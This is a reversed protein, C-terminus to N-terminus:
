CTALRGCVKSIPIAFSVGEAAEHVIKSVVVAVVRGEMDIVPAGSDGPSVPASLQLFAGRYASVVGDVVTGQLGFPSGIVIVADGVAPQRAAVPLRVFREDVSIVALDETANTLRITGSYTADGKIIEVDTRGLSWVSEIVHFNTILESGGGGSSVVFASGLGVGSTTTARVTFISRKAKKALAATDPRELFDNIQELQGQIAAVGGSLGQTKKTLSEV